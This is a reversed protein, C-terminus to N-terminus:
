GSESRFLTISRSQSPYSSTTVSSVIFQWDPSFAVTGGATLIRILTGDSVNWFKIGSTALQQSDPSYLGLTPGTCHLGSCQVITRILNGNAASWLKNNKDDGGSALQQGDPSFATYRVYGTHAGQWVIDPSGQASVFRVSVVLLVMSLKVALYRKSPRM